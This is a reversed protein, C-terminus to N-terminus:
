GLGSLAIDTGTGSKGIKKQGDGELIIINKGSLSPDMNINRFHPISKAKEKIKSAGLESVKSSFKTKFLKKKKKLDCVDAQAQALKEEYSQKM